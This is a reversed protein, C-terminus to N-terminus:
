FWNMRHVSYRYNNVNWILLNHIQKKSANVNGIYAYKNVFDYLTNIHSCNRIGWVKGIVYVLLQLDNNITPKVNCIFWKRYLYMQINISLLVFM